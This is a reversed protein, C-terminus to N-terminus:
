DNLSHRSTAIIRGIACGRTDADRGRAVGAQGASSKRREVCKTIEAPKARELSDDSDTEQLANRDVIMVRRTGTLAIRDRRKLETMARSVTEVSLALYDAIDYRSMPLVLRDDTGRPCRAAMEILFSGVKEPARTRGLIGIQAQLRTIAEFAKQRILRGVGPDSDALMEVRRRPYSAIVTDAVVAEVYFCHHEDGGAFGFFDGPLLFDMIQRRGNPRIAFRRLVGSIVRYWCDSPDEQGYIEQGRQYRRVTALSELVEPLDQRLFNPRLVNPQDLDCPDTVQISSGNGNVATTKM